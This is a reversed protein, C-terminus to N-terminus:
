WVSLNPLPSRWGYVRQLAAEYFETFAAEDCPVIRELLHAYRKDTQEARVVM